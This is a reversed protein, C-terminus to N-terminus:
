GEEDTRSGLEKDLMLLAARDDGAMRVRDVVSGVLDEEEVQETVFWQLQLQTAHDHKELALDYLEHIMESVREEHALAKEFVELPAGFSNTPSEIAGLDVKEGREILYDFLRMGHGIEEDSQLRMWRGFGDLSELEFHAAMALYLYAAHFEETIQRSLAKRVAADM